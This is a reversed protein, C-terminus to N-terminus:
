FYDNFRNWNVLKGNVDRCLRALNYWSCRHGGDNLLLLLLLLFYRCIDNYFEVTEVSIVKTIRKFENSFWISCVDNVIVQVTIM